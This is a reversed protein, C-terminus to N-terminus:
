RDGNNSTTDSSDLTPTRSADETDADRDPDTGPVVATVRSPVTNTLATVLLSRISPLQTRIYEPLVIVAVGAGGIVTARVTDGREYLQISLLVMPAGLYIGSAVSVLQVFNSKLQM